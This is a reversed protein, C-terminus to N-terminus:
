RMRPSKVFARAGAKTPSGKIAEKFEQGIRNDGQRSHTNFLDVVGNLIDRRRIGFKDPDIDREKVLENYAERYEELSEGGSMIKDFQKIAAKREAETLKDAPKANKEHLKIAWQIGGLEVFEEILTKIVQNRLKDPQREIENAYENIWKANTNKEKASRDVIPSSKFSYRYIKDYLNILNEAAKYSKDNFVAKGNKFTVGQDLQNKVLEEAHERAVYPKQIKLGVFYRLLFDNAFTEDTFPNDDLAKKAKPFAYVPWTPLPALTFSGQIIRDKIDDQLPTDEKVIPRGTWSNIGSKLELLTKSLPDAFIGWIPFTTGKRAMEFSIAFPMIYSLDLTIVAGNKDRLPLIPQWYSREADVMEKEEDSMGMGKMALIFISAQSIIGPMGLVAAMRIPHDRTTRYAIRIAQDTFSLFPQGIFPFKSMFRTFKSTRTYNPYFANVQESIKAESVGKAKLKFYLAAKFLQDEGTYLKHAYKRKGWTRAIIQDIMGFNKTKILEDELGKLEAGYYETGVIGMKIMEEYDADQDILSKLGAYYYRANAPNGVFNGALYSFIMNGMVNRGHTAPNYVTKSAKWRSYYGTWARMMAGTVETMEMIDEAIGAPVYMGKLDHLRGSGPLKVLGNEKAWAEVEEDSLEEEAKQGWEKSAYKLLKATHADTRIEMLSRAALYSPDHVENKARWEQPIPSELKVRNAAKKMLEYGVTGKKLAHPSLQSRIKAVQERVKGIRANKAEFEANKGKFTEVIKGDVKLVWKDQKMKNFASSLRLTLLKGIPGSKTPSVASLPVNKLYTGLNSRFTNAKNHLGLSEYVDAALSSEQDIMKRTQLVWLRLSDTLEDPNVDGRLAAEITMETPRHGLIVGDKEFASQLAKIRRKVRHKAHNVLGEVKRKAEVWEAPKGYTDSLKKGTWDRMIGAHSEKPIRSFSKETLTFLKRWAEHAADSSRKVIGEAKVKLAKRKKDTQKEREMRELEDLPSVPEEAALISPDDAQTTEQQVADLLPQIFSRTTAAHIGNGLVKKALKEDEPLKFSDPLGMLRSMMQPTVRKVTGDIIRSGTKTIRVTKGENPIILRPVARTSSLLTPSPGGAQRANPVGESASAGMTIIPKSLDLHRKDSKPLDAYRKIRRLEDPGVFNEQGAFKGTGISLPADEILDKITDFWDAPETTPPVAPLGIGLDKRIARIIMRERSQAAGYDAADHIQVDWEYGADELARTIPNILEPTTAFAPVNEIAVSKPRAERINSAIKKSSKIDDPLIKRDVKIRSLSKCVPSAHYLASGRIKEPDVDFASETKFDTGFSQNYADNIEDDFESRHQVTHDSLAAEMIGYGAFDLAIPPAQKLLEPSPEEAALADPEAPTALAPSVKAQNFVFLDGAGPDYLADIGMARARKGTAQGAGRTLEDFRSDGPEVVIIDDALQAVTRKGGFSQAYKENNTFSIAEGYYGDGVIKYGDETISKVSADDPTYHFVQAGRWEYHPRGYEDTSTQKPLRVDEVFAPAGPPTPEEAAAIETPALAQDETTPEPSVDAAPAAASVSTRLETLARIQSPTINLGFREILEYVADVVRGVAGRNESIARNRFSRSKFLRGVYRAVAERRAFDPNNAAREENVLRDARGKPTDPFTNLFGDWIQSQDTDSLIDTLDVGTGHAIEHGLVEWVAEAPMDSNVAIVGTSSMNGDADTDFVSAGRTKPSNSTFVLHLGFKRATSYASVAEDSNLNVIQAESNEKFQSRIKELAQKEKQKAQIANWTNANNSSGVGVSPGAPTGEPTELPFGLNVTDGPVSPPDSPTSVTSTVAKAGAGLVFAAAAEQTIREPDFISELDFGRDTRFKRIQAATEHAIGELVETIAETGGGLAVKGAFSGIRKLIMEKAIQAVARDPAGPLLNDIAIRELVVTILGNLAGEMGAYLRAEEDEVGQDTLDQYVEEATTGAIEAAPMLLSLSKVAGGIKPVVKGGAGVLGTGSLAFGLQFLLRTGNEGIQRVWWQPTNFTQELESPAVTRRRFAAKEAWYNATKELGMVRAWGAMADNMSAGLSEVGGFFGTVPGTEVEAISTAVDRSGLGQKRRQREHEELFPKNLSPNGPYDPFVAKTLTMAANEKAIRDEETMRGKPQETPEPAVLPQTPETAVQTPTRTPATQTTEETQIPASASASAASVPALAPEPVPQEVAQGMEQRAVPRLHGKENLAYELDRLVTEEDEGQGLRVGAAEIISDADVLEGPISTNLTSM